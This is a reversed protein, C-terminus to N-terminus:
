DEKKTKSERVVELDCSVFRAKINRDIQVVYIASDKIEVITGKRGQKGSVTCRVRVRDGVKGEDVKM